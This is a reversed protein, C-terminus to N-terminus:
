SIIIMACDIMVEETNYQHTIVWEHKARMIWVDIDDPLPVSIDEQPTSRIIQMIDDMRDSDYVIKSQFDFLVPYYRKKCKFLIYIM